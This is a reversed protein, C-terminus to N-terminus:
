AAPHFPKGLSAPANLRLRAGDRSMVVLVLITTLYPLMSMFQSPVEIGM